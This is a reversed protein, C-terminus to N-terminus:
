LINQSKDQHDHSNANTEDPARLSLLASWSGVDSWGFEGQIAAMRNCKEMIGYDVSISPMPDYIQVLKEQLSSSPEDLSIGSFCALVEPLHAQFEELITRTHFFFTGSNWLYSGDRLYKLALDASPKEVFSELEFAGPCTSIAEGCHLYGYGTEPHTPRVGITAVYGQQALAVANRFTDLYAAENTIHHDAPLVALVREEGFRAKSLLAGLAICPATNCGRPEGIINDPPIWPLEERVQAEIVSNTIVLIDEPDVLPKLRRAAAHVLTEESVLSLLQKPRHPQSMPWFRTGQGGAMLLVTTKM